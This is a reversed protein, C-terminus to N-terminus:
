HGRGLVKKRRSINSPNFRGYKSAMVRFTGNLTSNTAWLILECNNAAIKDIPMLWIEDLKMTNLILFETWM